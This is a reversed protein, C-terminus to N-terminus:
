NNTGPDMQSNHMYGTTVMKELYAHILSGKEGHVMPKSTTMVQEASSSLQYMAKPMFNTMAREALLHQNATKSTNGNIPKTSAAKQEFTTMEFVVMSPSM